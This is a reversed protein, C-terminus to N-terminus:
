GSSTAWPTSPFAGAWRTVVAQTPASRLAMMPGLDDLVGEIIEDDSLRAPRDDGARGMSARLLVDGPRRLEPWKSTLWTCATILHGAGAPVLFGTGELPRGVGDAPVQLTVLTVDAYDIAGLLAAVSGQVPELLEAARNAPTAIVVADAELTSGPTRLAWRTAADAHRRTRDDTGRLEVREVPTRMRIDVGRTGLADALRDVLRSLGDRVTYFVPAEGDGTTPSGPASAPPSPTTMRLARMISGSSAADLLAPFVAATSMRTTDGAHIGGVLPDVLQTTM